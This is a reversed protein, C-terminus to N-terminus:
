RLLADAFGPWGPRQALAPQIAAEGERIEDLALAVLQGAGCGILDAHIRASGIVREEDVATDAEAFGMQHVRDSVQDEIPIRVGFDGVDMGLTEDGVHDTGQLVVPNGVELPDVPGEIRQQDVVNLEEGALFARLFFEEM